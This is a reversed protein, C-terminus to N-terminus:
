IYFEFAIYMCAMKNMSYYGRRNIEIVNFDSYSM